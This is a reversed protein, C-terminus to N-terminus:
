KFTKILALVKKQFITFYPREGLIKYFLWGTINIAQIFLWKFSISEKNTSKLDLEERMRNFLFRPHNGIGGLYFNAVKIDIYLASFGESCKMRSLLEGDSLIKYRLDFRLRKMESTRFFAAQHPVISQNGYTEIFTEEYFLAVHGSVLVHDQMFGKSMNKLVLSHDFCDGANMFNIWKGNALAIGKNMADYIGEDSESVCYDIRDEYKRLIDLTGDNSGGDIVIYEINKYAQKVVSKITDEIHKVDNFVVTVISILPPGNDYQTTSGESCASEDSEPKYHKAVMNDSLYESTSNAVISEM